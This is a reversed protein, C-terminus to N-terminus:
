SIERLISYEVKRVATENEGMYYYIWLHMFLKKGDSFGIKVPETTGTGFSNNFNTCRIMLIGDQVELEVNHSEIQRDTLFHIKIDGVFKGGVILHMRVESEPSDMFFMNSEIIEYKGSQITTNVM